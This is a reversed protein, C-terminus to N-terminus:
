RFAKTRETWFSNFSSVPDEFLWVSTGYERAAPNSISGVKTVKSFLKMLDEGPEDNVYILSTIDPDFKEPFWYLFSESFCIAEPLGYKRGIVTLAAAEGYNDGYIITAKKDKVMDYAKAALSTLEEWGLMDAYDQPLSHITGDEFRRGLDIGLKKEQFEFYKIMGPVKFVPVGVPIVPLSIVILLLPFAIRIWRRELWKEYAASGAAILLPFVGLTYYSKGKLLMLGIIVFLSLFGLLRYKKMESSFILYIIGAVTFVSAVFPMMLQERIFLPIDMHVLQRDYLESFHNFVPFGRYVQWIINPLFILFGIIIGILFKRERFINRYRTFPVILFLGAIIMGALYKNLLALGCVAGLYLLLNEKGTNIYRLVLYIILTWLFIEIHVPQFLFYTRQFFVSTMLGASSLFAAYSSGGLERVIAATLIILAGGLLAPFLRVAFVSYGFINQMLWAILGTVPPVSNYGAAPHM